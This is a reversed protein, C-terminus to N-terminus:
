FDSARHYCLWSTNDHAQGYETGARVHMGRARGGAVQDLGVLQQEEVEPGARQHVEDLDARVAVPDLMEEDSVVVRIMERVEELEEKVSDKV